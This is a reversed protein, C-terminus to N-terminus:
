KLELGASWRGARAGLEIEIDNGTQDAWCLNVTRFPEM